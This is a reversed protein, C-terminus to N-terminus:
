AEVYINAKILAKHATWFDDKSNVDLGNAEAIDKWFIHGTRQVLVQDGEEASVMSSLSIGIVDDGSTTEVAGVTESLKVMQGKEYGQGVVALYNAKDGCDDLGKFVANPERTIELSRQSFNNCCGM